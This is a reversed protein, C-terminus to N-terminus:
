RNFNVQAGFIDQQRNRMDTWAPYALNGHVVLGNYDGIFSGGFIPDNLPNSSVTTVKLNPEFTEGGDTSRAVYVDLLLNNADARRDYFMVVINGNTPDVAIWPMFQDKGNGMPDDNMRVPESWTQGADTSRAFFVDADGNRGDSWILYLNGRRPGSSTDVTMAPYSSVRFGGNLLRRGTDPDLTGIPTFSAARVEREFAMGGNTSKATVYNVSRAWIVYLTGDPGVVPLSFQQSGSRRLVMPASFTGGADTSRSFRIEVASGTALFGSWSVYVNNAYPSAPNADVAIFPKDEFDPNAQGRHALVAVPARFTRGGNTSKSVYVGNDDNSSSFAIFSFYTNGQADGAIGPDSSFGLGSPQPIQGNRWTRGGNTSSYFGQRCCTLGGENAGAILNNPDLPNMAVFPENQAAGRPTDGNVRFNGEVPDQLLTVLDTPGRSLVHGPRFIVGGSLWIEEVITPATAAEVVSANLEVALRPALATRAVAPVSEGRAARAKLAEYETPSIAKLLKLSAIEPDYPIRILLSEDALHVVDDPAPSLSDPNGRRSLIDFTGEALVEGSRSLAQYLYRHEPNNGPRRVYGQGLGYRGVQFAETQEALRVKIVLLPPLNSVAEEVVGEPTTGPSSGSGGIAGGAVLFLQIVGIMILLRWQTSLRFRDVLKCLKEKTMEGESMIM